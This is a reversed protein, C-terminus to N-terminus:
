SNSHSARYYVRTLFALYGVAALLLFIFLLLNGYDPQVKVSDFSFYVPELAAEKAVLKMWSFTFLAFFASIFAMVYVGAERIALSVKLFVVAFVLATVFLEFYHSSWIKDAAAEPLSSIWWACTLAALLSGGSFTWFGINGLVSGENEDPLSSYHSFGSLLLGGLALSVSFYVTMRATVQLDQYVEPQGPGALFLSKIAEPLTMLVSAQTMFFTVVVAGGVVVLGALGSFVPASLQNKRFYWAGLFGIVLLILSFFWINSQIIVAPYFTQRYLIQVLLMPLVGSVVSFTLLAPLASSTLQVGKRYVDPNASRFFLFFLALLGTGILLGVPLLHFAGALLTLFKFLGPAAPLAFSEQGPFFTDL